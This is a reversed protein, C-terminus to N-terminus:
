CVMKGIAVAESKAMREYCECADLNSGQIGFVNNNILKNANDERGRHYQKLNDAAANELEKNAQDRQTRADEM